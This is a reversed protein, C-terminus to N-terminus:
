GLWLYLGDLDWSPQAAAAPVAPSARRPSPDPDIRTPEFSDAYASHALLTLFVACIRLIRVPSTLGPHLTGLRLDRVRRRISDFRLCPHLPAPENNAKPLGVPESINTACNGPSIDLKAMWCAAGTEPAIT